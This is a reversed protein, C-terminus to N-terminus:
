SHVMLCFHDKNCICFLLTLALSSISLRNQSYLCIMWIFHWAKNEGFILISYQIYQLCESLCAQVFLTSGSSISCVAADWWPRCQKKVLCCTTWQVQEFNLVLITLLQLLWTNQTFLTIIIIYISYQSESRHKLLWYIPKKLKSIM